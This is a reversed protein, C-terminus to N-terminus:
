KKIYREYFNNPKKLKNIKRNEQKPIKKKKNLDEAIEIAIKELLEKNCSGILSLENCNKKKMIKNDIIIDCYPTHLGGYGYYGLVIEYNYDNEIKETEKYKSFDAKEILNKEKFM